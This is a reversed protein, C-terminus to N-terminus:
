EEHGAEKESKQFRHFVRKNDMRWPHDASVPHPKTQPVSRKAQVPDDAHKRRYAERGRARELCTCRKCRTRGELAERKGCRICIGAAKRRARQERMWEAQRANHQKRGESSETYQIARMQMKYLCNVCYVRGGFSKERGCKVCFGRAKLWQYREAERARKRARADMETDCM